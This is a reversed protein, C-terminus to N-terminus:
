PSKFTFDVSRTEGAVLTLEQELEGLTEHWVVLKYTGPPVNPIEFRGSGNSVAFYPHKLVGVYAKEWPHQNCKFPILVEPRTFTKVFEHGSVQSYNWEQNVRPTPHTNHVTEDSNSIRLSQGVQLGMVHPSYRCHSHKLQRETTPKAFQYNLLPGGKLYVFGNKLKNENVIFSETEAKGETITTCVPDPSMDIRQPSPITGTVSVTGVITAENGTTYYLPKESDDQPREYAVHPAIMLSPFILFALILLQYRM